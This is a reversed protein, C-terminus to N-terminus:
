DLSQELMAVVDAVDITKSEVAGGVSDKDTSQVLATHNKIQIQKTSQERAKDREKEIILQQIIPSM